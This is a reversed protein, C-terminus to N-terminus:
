SPGAGGDARPAAGSPRQESPRQESPRLVDALVVEAARSPDLLVAEIAHRAPWRDAVQALAAALGALHVAHPVGDAVWWDVEVGDVTLEDHEIWTEPLGPYLGVAAAPVPVPRGDDDVRGAALEDARPLDLLHATRDPDSSPVMAAVDTRQWWMPAPAVAAEAAVVVEVRGYAALAPVREPPEDPALLRWVDVATSPEVVTGVPWADLLRSWARGDVDGPGDVGGLARRVAAELGVVVDPAGRLLRDPGGVAFPEALGLGARERLWWATYSPGVGAGARVPDLLARRLDPQDAIRALVDPWRGDAVADLDAVAAVQGVFADDGLVDALHELYDPWGDLSQAALTAPEDGDDLLAGGALVDDVRVVVLDRRVGLAVLVDAGWQDIEALAVPAVVRDDLLGAAASGPLVLGDAPTPEGDAASLEVLGTWARVDDPLGDAGAALAATALTLVIPAAEEPEDLAARRVEQRRLLAVADAPEAGLRVLLPHADPPAVLRVGWASLTRLVDDPLAVEDLVAVGRAGRVVRGDALPVPLAGLAERAGADQTLQDLADYLESWRGPEAAPLDDVLDALRRVDVGLARAQTERGPPLVVLSAVRRGLAALAAPPFSGAVAIAVGAPVRHDDGGAPALLPRHTLADVIRPRLAADVPGAGLGTPVLALADGGARAVTQALDAYVRAAHDLVADTLPGSAVHRRTADLPLTAVLMAPLDLPDDTPTPAHVARASSPTPRLGADGRPVAWTVRWTRASREEVPRGALLALPLEGEDSAVTWRSGVDAVRRPAADDDEVLVEVLAPLALLLADDIGALLARVEDAAVEDRLTAVVATDYGVPPRGEAPFPLRLAPLSGDRRRVEDDLAPTGAQALLEATDRVSFRVGGTTSLVSVEDAVARVAAFGVGFRGVVGGADSRKASARMSALAAVGPEDLPAGTNAAVLTTGDPTAALRLLLRGPVGARVAADAANQALEVLVRDRYYGRAHDEEVNADERLRAPSVQWAGVAAARLAATGFPDTTM